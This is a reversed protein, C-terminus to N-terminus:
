GSPPTIRRFSFTSSTFGCAPGLRPLIELFERCVDGGFKVAHSSDIFLIDGVDLRQFNWSSREAPRKPHEINLRSGHTPAASLARHQDARVAPQSTSEVGARPQRNAYFVLELRTPDVIYILM